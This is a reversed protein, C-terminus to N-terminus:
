FQSLWELIITGSTIAPAGADALIVVHTSTIYFSVQGAIVISSGFIAGYWDSGDTYVGQCKTFQTISDFSIGHPISGAASFNYIQRLSQQPQRQGQFFWREGTIIQNGLAFSGITRANVKSAVDIYAQDSQRALQKLDSDPFQRQERLYPSQQLTSM